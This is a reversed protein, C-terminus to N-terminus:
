KKVFHMVIKKSFNLELFWINEWGSLNDLDYQFMDPSTDETKWTRFIKISSEITQILDNIYTYSFYFNELSQDKHYWAKFQHGNPYM